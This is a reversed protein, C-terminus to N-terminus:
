INEIVFTENYGVQPHDALSLSMSQMLLIQRSLFLGIGSGSQKTTFFPVFVDRRLEQPICSGNNSVYLFFRSTNAKSLSIYKIGVRKADAEIANKVMNILVQRFLTADARLISGQPVDIEWHLSPYLAALGCCHEYLDIDQVVPDQLQTLKRYSDVFNTLGKSTDHIARLGEEYPSNQIESSKLYAQSICQIPAMANKIEHTLVRTLREWSEVENHAALKQIDHGMDNLAEQLAREGFFLGRVPLRFSFDRHRIAARMMEARDRLKCQHRILLLLLGVIVVGSVFLVLEM